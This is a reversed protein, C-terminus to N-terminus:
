LSLGAHIFHTSLGLKQRESLQIAAGAGAHWYGVNGFFFRTELDVSGPENYASEGHTQYAHSLPIGLFLPSLALLKALPLILKM